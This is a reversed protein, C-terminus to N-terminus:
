KKSNFSEWFSCIALKLQKSLHLSDKCAIMSYSSALKYGVQLKYVMLAFIFSFGLFGVFGIKLTRSLTRISRNIQLIKFFKFSGLCACFVLMSALLDDWYALMQLNIFKGSSSSSARSSLIGM